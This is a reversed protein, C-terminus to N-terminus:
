RKKCAAAIDFGYIPNVVVCGTDRSVVTRRQIHLFPAWPPNDRMLDVDLEAWAERRAAGTLRNAEDLRQQVRTDDLNVGGAGLIPVFFAAGDAYDASWANLTLDFPEGKTAIKDGLATINFYKVEVDIGIQELNFRLTQAVAVGQPSNDTYLVLEKPVLKARALWTRATDPDSGELPYISAARALAPPLLQDTRKGALYGFTRALEPRDIAFNIAKKLPIQGAGQVRAPRPQVRRVV